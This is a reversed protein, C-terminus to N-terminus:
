DLASGGPRVAPMWRPGATDDIRGVYAAHHPEVVELFRQTAPEGIDRWVVATLEDTLTQVLQRDPGEVTVRIVPETGSARLIVRGEEGLKAETDAVAKQISPSADLDLRQAENFCPVVLQLRM